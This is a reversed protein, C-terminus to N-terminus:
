VLDQEWVYCKVEMLMLILTLAFLEHLMKNVGVRFNRTTNADGRSIDVNQFLKRKQQQQQQQQQLSFARVSPAHANAHTHIRTHRSKKREDNQKWNKQRMSQGNSQQFFTALELMVTNHFSNGRSPRIKSSKLGVYKLKVTNIILINKCIVANKNSMSMSQIFVPIVSTTKLTSEIEIWERNVIWM